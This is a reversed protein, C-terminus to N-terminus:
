KRQKKNANFPAASAGKNPSAKEIFGTMRDVHADYIKEIQTITASGALETASKIKIYALQKNLLAEESNFLEKIRIKRSTLRKEENQLDEYTLDMFPKHEKELICENKLVELKPNHPIEVVSGLAIRADKVVSLKEEFLSAAIEEEATVDSDETQIANMLDFHGKALKYANTTRGVKSEGSKKDPTAGKKGPSSKKREIEAQKRQQEKNKRLAELYEEDDSEDDSGDDEEDDEEDHEEDNGEMLADLAESRKQGKRKKSSFHSVKSGDDSENADSTDDDNRGTKKLGARHSKLYDAMNGECDLYKHTSVNVDICIRIEHPM